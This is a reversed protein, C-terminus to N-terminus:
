DAHASPRPKGGVDESKSDLAFRALELGGEAVASTPDNKVLLAVCSRSVTAVCV